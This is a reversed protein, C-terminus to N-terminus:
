ALGRIYSRYSPVYRRAMDSTIQKPVVQFGHVAAPTLTALAMLPVLLLLLPRKMASFSPQYPLLMQLLM